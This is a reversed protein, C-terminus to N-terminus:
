IMRWFSKLEEIMPTEKGDKTEKGIERFIKKPTMQFYKTTHLSIQENKM